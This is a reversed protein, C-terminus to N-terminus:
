KKRVDTISIILEEIETMIFVMSVMRIPKRNCIYYVIRTTFINKEKYVLIDLPYKSNVM